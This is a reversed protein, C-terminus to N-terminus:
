FYSLKKKKIFETPKFIARTLVRVNDGYPMTVSPRLPDLLLSINSVRCIDLVISFDKNVILEM